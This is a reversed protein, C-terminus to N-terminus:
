NLQDGPVGELAREVATIIGENDPRKCIIDDAIWSRFDSRLEDDTTQLLVKCGKFDTAHQLLYDISHNDMDVVIVDMPQSRSIRTIDDWETTSWVTHGLGELRKKLVNRRAPNSENLVIKAM